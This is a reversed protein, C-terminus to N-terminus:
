EDDVAVETLDRLADRVKLADRLDPDNKVMNRTVDKPTEREPPGTPAGWTRAM